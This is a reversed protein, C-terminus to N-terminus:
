SIELLVVSTVWRQAFEDSGIILRLPGNGGEAHSVLAQGDQQYVLMVKPNKMIEDVSLTIAYTDISQILVSSADESVEALELLSAVTVGTYTFNGEDEVHMASDLTAQMDSSPLAEIESITLNLPNNVNGRVQLAGEQVDAPRSFFYLPVAVAVLLVFFIVATRTGKNM